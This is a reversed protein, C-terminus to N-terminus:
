QYSHNERRTPRFLIIARILNYALVSLAAGSVKM